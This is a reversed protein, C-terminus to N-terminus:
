KAFFFRSNLEDRYSNNQKFIKKIIKRKVRGKKKVKSFTYKQSFRFRIEVIKFPQPSVRPEKITKNNIPNLFAKKTKYFLLNLFEHLFTPSSNVRINLKRVKLILFLRRLYKAMVLKLIKNKRFSKQLTFFSKFMGMSLYVYTEGTSESTLNLFLQSKVFSLVLNYPVLHKKKFLSGKLLTYFDLKTFNFVAIFPNFIFFWKQFFSKQLKLKKNELTLASLNWLYKLVNESIASFFLLDLLHNKNKQSKPFMKKFDLKFIKKKLVSRKLNTQIFTFFTPNSGVRSLSVSKCDTAKSREAM